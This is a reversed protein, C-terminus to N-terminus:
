CFDANKGSKHHKKLLPSPKKLKLSIKIKKATKRTVFDLARSKDM